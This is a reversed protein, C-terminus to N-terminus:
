HFWCCQFNTLDSQNQSLPIALQGKLLGHDSIFPQVLDSPQRLFFRDHSSHVHCIHLFRFDGCRDHPYNKSKEVHFMERCALYPSSHARHGEWIDTVHSPRGLAPQGDRWRGWWRLWRAWWSWSWWWWWLWFTHPYCQAIDLQSSPPAATESFAPKVKVEVEESEECKLQSFCRFPSQNQNQSRTVSQTVTHQGTPPADAKSKVTISSPLLLLLLFPTNKSNPYSVACSYKYLFYKFIQGAFIQINTLYINSYTDLFCNVTLGM